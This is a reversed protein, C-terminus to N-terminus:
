KVIDRGSKSYMIIMILAGLVCIILPLYKGFLVNTITLDDAQESLASSSSLGDYINVMGAANLITIFLIFLFLFMIIPNFNTRSAAIILGIVMGLFFLLITEDTTHKSITQMYDNKEQAIESDNFVNLDKYTQTVKYSLSYTLLGVIAIIFLFILLFLIQFIDGKKSKPKLIM